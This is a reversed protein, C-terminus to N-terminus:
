EKDLQVEITQSVTEFPALDLSVQISVKKGAAEQPV